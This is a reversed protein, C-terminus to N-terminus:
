NASGVGSGGGGDVGCVISNGGRESGGCIVVEVCYIMEGIEAQPLAHVREGVKQLPRTVGVGHRGSRWLSLTPSNCRM